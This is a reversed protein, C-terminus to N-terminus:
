CSCTDKAAVPPEQESVVPKLEIPSSKALKSGDKPTGEAIKNFINFRVCVAAIFSDFAENVNDGTKASTEYYFLGEHEAFYKATQMPTTRDPLDIKNGILLVLPHKLPDSLEEKYENVMKLWRNKVDQFSNDRLKGNSGMPPKDAVDYVIIVGHAGRLNQRPFSDFREQGATDFLLVSVQKTSIQKTNDTCANGKEDIPVSVLKKRLDMGVTAHYANGFTNEDFREKLATKGVNSNGIITLKISPYQKTQLFSGGLPPTGRGQSDGTNKRSPPDSM